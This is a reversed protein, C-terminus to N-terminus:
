QTSHFDSYPVCAIVARKKDLTKQFYNNCMSLKHPKSM